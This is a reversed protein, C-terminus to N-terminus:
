VITALEAVLREREKDFVFLAADLDMRDGARAARNIYDAAGAYAKAGIMNSAGKIRHAVKGIAGFDTTGLTERLSISDADDAAIFQLLIERRLSEDGGTFEELVSPDIPAAQPATATVPERDTGDNGSDNKAPTSSVSATAVPAGRKNSFVWRDIKEKLAALTTPKAVCDNMGCQKCLAFNSSFADATCAIIATQEISGSEAEIKRIERALEYGDMRPMHCDTIVIPYKGAKWKELAEVGDIAMETEYGLLAAQREILRLNVPHDDVILITPLSISVDDPLASSNQGQSPAPKTEAVPIKSIPLRVLLTLTTGNGPESELSISGGMLAALHKCISLGLGTGGYKRTTNSDAQVFPKFLRAQQEIAVGVGTDRVCLRILENEGDREICDATVTIRGHSTFKVANSLLNNLIQTLRFGDALHCKAIIPDIRQEVVMGKRTAVETFVTTASTIIAAIATPEPKIEVQGSEIKSFDLIDDILRLLASASDRAIGVTERQENELNSFELLELMGLVGNMPTRIEHSMTALFGSKSQSAIDAMEKARILARMINQQATVDTFTYLVDSSGPELPQAAVVAWFHEGNSRLFELQDSFTQGNSIADRVRDEAQLWDEVSTYLVDTKRGILAGPEDGFLRDMAPNTQIFRFDRVLATATPTTELLVESRRLASRLSLEMIQRETIDSGVGRYGAFAGSEDYFPKGSTSITRKRGDAQIGVYEFSQFPLRNELTARHAAWQERSLGETSLEWRRKGIAARVDINSNIRTSVSTFVLDANQEWYWDSSMEALMRFRRESEQLQRESIKRLSVDRVTIQTGFVAGTKYFVPLKVIEIWCDRGDLDQATEYTMPMRTSMVETDETRLRMARERSFIDFETRGVIAADEVLYRKRFAKNVALVLGRADKLWAVEPLTDLLMQRHDVAPPPAPKVANTRKGLDILVGNMSSLGDSNQTCFGRVLCNHGLGDGRHLAVEIQFTTSKEYALRVAAIFRERDEICVLERLTSDPNESNGFLWEAPAAWRFQDTGIDWEWPLAGAASVLLHVCMDQSLVQKRTALHHRVHSSTETTLLESKTGVLMPLITAEGAM